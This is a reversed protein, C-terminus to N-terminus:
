RCPQEEVLARLARGCAVLTDGATGEGPGGGQARRGQEEFDAALALIDAAPVDDPEAQLEALTPNGHLVALEDAQAVTMTFQHYAKRADDAMVQEIIKAAIRLADDAAQQGFFGAIEAPSGDYVAWGDIGTNYVALKGDPQKIVQYAM